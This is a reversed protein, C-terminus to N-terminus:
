AGAVVFYTYTRNIAHVREKNAETDTLMARIEAIMIPYDVVWDKKLMLKITRRDAHGEKAGHLTFFAWLLLFMQTYSNLNGIEQLVEVQCEQRSVMIPARNYRRRVLHQVVKITFRCSNSVLGKRRNPRSESPLRQNFIFRNCLAFLEDTHVPQIEGFPPVYEGAISPKKRRVRKAMVYIAMSFSAAVVACFYMVFLNALPSDEDTYLTGLASGIILALIIILYAPNKPLTIKPPM